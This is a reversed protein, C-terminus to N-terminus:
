GAGTVVALKALRDKLVLAEAIARVRETSDTKFTWGGQSLATIDGQMMRGDTLLEVVRILMRYFVVSRVPDETPTTVVVTDGDQVERYEKLHRIHTGTWVSRCSQVDVSHNNRDNALVYAVSVEHSDDLRYAVYHGKTLSQWGKRKGPKWGSAKVVGPLPAGDATEGAIM